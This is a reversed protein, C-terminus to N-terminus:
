RDVEPVGQTYRGTRHEPGLQLEMNYSTVDEEDTTAQTVFVNRFGAPREFQLILREIGPAINDLSEGTATLTGVSTAPPAGEAFDAPTLNITLNAIDTGQPMVLSVDQLIGALSVQESLARIVLERDAELRRDLEAPLTLADVAAQAESLEQQAAALDDEADSLTGRQLWTAVGLGAIVVLVLALAIVRQQSQRGEERTTQPLLNVKATM